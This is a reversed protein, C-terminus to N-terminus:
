WPYRSPLFYWWRTPLVRLPLSCYCYSWHCPSRYWSRLRISRMGCTRSSAAMSLTTDRNWSSISTLPKKSLVCSKRSILTVSMWGSWSVANRPMGTLRYLGTSWSSRLSRALRSRSERPLGYLSSIWIWIRWKIMIWVFCWTSVDSMRSFSVRRRERM